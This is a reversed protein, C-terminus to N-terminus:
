TLIDVFGVLRCGQEDNILKLRRSFAYGELFSLVEHLYTFFAVPTTEPSKSKDHLEIQKLISEEESYSFSEALLLYDIENVRNAILTLGFHNAIVGLQTFLQADSYYGM